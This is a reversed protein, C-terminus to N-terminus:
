RAEAVRAPAPEDAPKRGPEGGPGLLRLRPAAAVPEGRRSRRLDVAAGVGALVLVGVFLYSLSALVTSRRSERALIVRFAQNSLPDVKFGGNATTFDETKLTIKHADFSDIRAEVDGRQEILNREPDEWVVQQATVPTGSSLSFEVDRILTPREPQYPWLYRIRHIRSHIFASIRGTLEAEDAFSIWQEQPRVAGARATRQDDSLGKIRSTLLVTGDHALALRWIFDARQHYEPDYVEFETGSLRIAQRAAELYSPPVRRGADEVQQIDVTVPAPTELASRRADSGLRALAEPAGTAHKFDEWWMFDGVDILPRGKMEGLARRIEAKVAPPLFSSCVLLDNPLPTEIPIFYVKTGLEANAPDGREFKAKTGDWVAALDAAGRAVRKVLETSGAKAIEGADIAWLGGSSRDM